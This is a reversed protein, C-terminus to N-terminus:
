QRAAGAPPGCRAVSGSQRRPPRVPKWGDRLLDAQIAVTGLYRASYDPFDYAARRGDPHTVVVRHGHLTPAARVTLRQRHGLRQRAFHVM